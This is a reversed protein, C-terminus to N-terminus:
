EWLVANVWPDYKHSDKIINNITNVDIEHEGLQYPDQIILEQINTISDPNHDRMVCRVMSAIITMSNHFKPDHVWDRYKSYLNKGQVLSDGAIHYVYPRSYGKHSKGYFLNWFRNVSHSLQFDESKSQHMIKFMKVLIHTRCIAHWESNIGGNSRGEEFLDIIRQPAEDAVIPGMNYIPGGDKGDQVYFRADKGVQSVRIGQGHGCFLHVRRINEKFSAFDNNDCLFNVGYILGELSFLDDNDIMVTLPTTISSCALDMKRMFKHISDDSGYNHYEIDLNRYENIWESNDKGSGDAFFIKFPVDEHSMYELIRKTAYDRGWLPILITLTDKLKM